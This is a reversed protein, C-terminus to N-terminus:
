LNKSKLLSLYLREIRDKEDAGGWRTCCRGLAEALLRFDVTENPTGNEVRNVKKLIGWIRRASGTRSTMRM